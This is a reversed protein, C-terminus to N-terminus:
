KVAGSRFLKSIEDALDRRTVDFWVIEKDKRFWTLQRKAYNRTNQKIKGIAKELSIRGELYAFLEKYGVTNLANLKPGYGMKALNRVEELLGQSLMMEVREDIRRYLEERALTLGTKVFCFEPAACAERKQLESMAKGTLEYVELARIVRRVDGPHIRSATLPDVAWLRRHLNMNGQMALEGELRKRIKKDASPGDFLGGTLAKLYLGSGGVVIPQKKRGFIGRIAERSKVAYEAASFARDPTIINILHHPIREQEESTPKATGINLFSYVQRSDASIIEGSLKDALELAIKSKGCATPGVIALVKNM